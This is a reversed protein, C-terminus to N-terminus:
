LDLWAKKQIIDSISRRHQKAKKALAFLNFLTVTVISADLAPKTKVSGIFPRIKASREPPYEGLVRVFCVRQATIDRTQAIRCRHPILVLLSHIAPPKTGNAPHPVHLEARGFAGGTLVM